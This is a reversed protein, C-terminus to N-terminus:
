GDTTVSLYWGEAIKQTGPQDRHTVCTSTSFLSAYVRSQASDDDAIDRSGPLALDSRSRREAWLNGLLQPVPM